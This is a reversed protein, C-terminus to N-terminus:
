TGDGRHRVNGTGRIETVVERPAGTYNINGTGRVKAQLTRSVGIVVNGTGRISIEADAVSLADLDADVTGRASLDFSELWGEASLTSTGRIEIRTDGGDFGAIETKATGRIELSELRPVTVHATIRGGQGWGWGSPERRIVLTGNEVETKIQRIARPDGSLRLSEPEGVRINLDANGRLEVARFSQAVRIDRDAEPGDPVRARRDVAFAAGGDRASAGRDTWENQVWAGIMLLGTILIIWKMPNGPM